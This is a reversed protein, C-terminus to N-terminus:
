ITQANSITTEIQVRVLEYQASEVIECRIKADEVDQIVVGEIVLTMNKCFLAKMLGIIHGMGRYGTIRCIKDEQCLAHSIQVLLNVMSEEALGYLLDSPNTQRGLSNYIDYIKAAEKALLNGYGLTKAKGALLNAVDALQAISSVNISNPCRRSCLSSLVVGTEAHNFYNRLCMSILAIAQGGASDAM